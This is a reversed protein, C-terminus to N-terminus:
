EVLVKKIIKVGSSLAVEIFYTGLLVDTLDVFRESSAIFLADSNIPIQDGRIDLLRISEIPYSKSSVRFSGKSPNPFVAIDNVIDVTKNINAKPKIFFRKPLSWESSNKTGHWVQVRWWTSDQFISVDLPISHDPTAFEFYSEGFTPDRSYQIKSFRIDPRTNWAFEISGDTFVTDHTPATLTPPEPYITDPMTYVSRIESWPGNGPLGIARVRWYFEEGDFFSTSYTTDKGTGRTDFMPSFDKEKSIQIEYYSERDVPHWSFVAKGPPIVAHNDPALLTPPPLQPAVTFTRTNSWVGIVTDNKARVHWYYKTSNALLSFISYTSDGSGTNTIVGFNSSTSLQIEYSTANEVPQWSFIISSSSNLIGDIPAILLPADLYQSYGINASIAFVTMLLSVVYKM